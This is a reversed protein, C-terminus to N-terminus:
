LWLSLCTAVTIFMLRVAIFGRGLVDNYRGLVSVVGEVTARM